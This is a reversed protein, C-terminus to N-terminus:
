YQGSAKMFTGYEVNSKNIRRGILQKLFKQKHRLPRSMVIHIYQKPNIHWGDVLLDLHLQEDQSSPHLDEEVSFLYIIGM